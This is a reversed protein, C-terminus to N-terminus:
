RSTDNNDRLRDYEFCKFGAQHEWKPDEAM